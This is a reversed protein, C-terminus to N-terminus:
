NENQVDIEAGFALLLRVIDTHKHHMALQLPTLSGAPQSNMNAGQYLLSTVGFLRGNKAFLHLPSQGSTDLLQFSAGKSLLLPVLKESEPSTAAWHLATMGNGDAEYLNSSFGGLEIIHSVGVEDGRLVADILCQFLDMFLYTSRQILYVIQQNMSNLYIFVGDYLKQPLHYSGYSIAIAEATLNNQNPQFCSKGQL